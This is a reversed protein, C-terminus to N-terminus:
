NESGTTLEVSVNVIDDSLWDDDDYARLTFTVTEITEIYNEELTSEFWYMNSYATKGAYVTKAWYPDCSFGNVGVDDATVMINKDTSNEICLLFSPGWTYDEDYDIATVKVGDSDVLVVSQYGNGSTVAFTSPDSSTNQVTLTVTENYYDDALWDDNDYVRLELEVTEIYNIGYNSLSSFSVDSYTKLGAGLSKAWFPDCMVDNVAANNISFMLSTSETKNELYFSFTNDEFSEVRITINDDDVITVAEFSVDNESSVAEQSSSDEEDDAAALDVDSSNAEGNSVSADNDTTGSGDDYTSSVLGCSTLTALMACMVLVSLWQTFKKSM